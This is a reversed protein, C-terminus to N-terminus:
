DEELVREDRSPGHQARRKQLVVEFQERQAPTLTKRIQANEDERINRLEQRLAAVVPEQKAIAASDRAIHARRLVRSERNFEGRKAAFVPRFKAQIDMVVRAQDHGLGLAKELPTDAAAPGSLTLLGVLLGASVVAPWACSLAARWTRTQTQFRVGAGAARADFPTEAVFHAIM